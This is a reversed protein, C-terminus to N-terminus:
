EPKVIKIKKIINNLFITELGNNQSQVKSIFNDKNLILRLLFIYYSIIKKM